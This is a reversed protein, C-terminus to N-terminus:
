QSSTRTAFLQRYGLSELDRFMPTGPPLGAPLTFDSDFLYNRVPPSYVSYQCCKFIGTNYTAYYLSVLSGGYNLTQGTWDELFRLFNHIGGDTGFGYDTANEWNPFPFAMNKGGSIAVRYYTTAGVRDGAYPGNANTTSGMTIDNNYASSGVLSMLDGSNTGNAWNNSLITVSDAIVAAASHAPNQLDAGPAGGTAGTFFTDNANSNYNGMIYVPNESAVTFGGSYTVGSVTTSVPSIPVNPYAGDVLRLVHRAGSVWNKRGTTGCSQIRNSASATGYPDSAAVILGNINTSATIPYTYTNPTGATTTAPQTINYFSLGLNKIGFNDLVNNENVDEPSLSQGAPTPELRTDPTGAASASNIVDELGADGTLTSGGSYNPNPLMGRRDSFYLVYGNENSYNVSTGSSGIKGTLWQQLNGVDLEVSNMVGNATCSNNGWDTDRPEGERVDYFNIPYWNYMSESQTSESGTYLGYWPTISTTPPTVTTMLSDVLFEPPSANNWASCPNSTTPALPTICNEEWGTHDVPLNIVGNGRRDAPEQLLLIAQPNIPNSAGGAPTGGYSMTPPVLGRAFGLGLWENTVGIWQGSNNLYEVRLYGDILNWTATPTALYFPYQLNSTASCGTPVTYKNPIPPCLQIAPPATTSTGSTIPAGLPILTQTAPTAPGYPWDQPLTAFTSAAPCSGGSTTATCGAVNPIANSAAAFYMNYSNSTGPAPLATPFYTANVTTPYSAVAIGYQNSGAVNALRVNNADSAGGPLQAPNDALLIHIQAQNYERSQGIASTASEGAFPQRIIQYNCLLGAGPCTTGSVFPLSLKKAGTGPNTASGYNGNIVMYNTTTKSFPNWNTSDYSSQPPNGGAGVVSGDGYASGGNTAKLVCNTTPTSCGPATTPVYVSGTDSYTTASLGNPLVETVVNGYAELKNNFTITNGSAVGLYLDGNAHVRGGFTLTPSDFFGCDNECFVGYQFVPILAVEANRTMSVEQGGMTQATALMNIPIVQAYLGQDPGGTLLGWVPGGPQGPAPWASPCTTQGQPLVSYQTWTIGAMSPQYTSSGVGCIQSPLPSQANQYLSTLDSEMKEIGGEAAHFALDNQLDTGGVKGETNVMMMLGIAIGSLLLLLLLSAILTFGKTKPRSNTRYGNKKYNSM